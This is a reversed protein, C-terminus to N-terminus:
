KAVRAIDQEKEEVFAMHVSINANGFTASPINVTYYVPYGMWVRSIGKPPEANSNSVGYFSSDNISLSFASHKDKCNFNISM